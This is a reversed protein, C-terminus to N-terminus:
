DPESHGYDIQPGSFFSSQEIQPGECLLNHKLIM